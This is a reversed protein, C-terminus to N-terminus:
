ISTTCGFASCARPPRSSGSADWSNPGTGSTTRSSTCCPGTPPSPRRGCSSSSSQNGYPPGALADWLNSIQEQIPAIAGDDAAVVEGNSLNVEDVGNAGGGDKTRRVPEEEILLSMGGVAMPLVSAIGFVERPSMTELLSGSFYASILGGVAASGWCVSQLGGAM